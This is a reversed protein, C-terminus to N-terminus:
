LSLVRVLASDSFPLSYAAGAPHKKREKKKRKKKRKLEGRQAIQVCALLPLSPPPKPTPPFTLLLCTEGLPNTGQRHRDTVFIGNLKTAEGEPCCHLNPLLYVLLDACFILTLQKKQKKILAWMQNQFHILVRGGTKSPSSLVIKSFQTSSVASELRKLFCPSLITPASRM